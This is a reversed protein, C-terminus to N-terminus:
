NSLTATSQIIKKRLLDINSFDGKDMESIRGYTMEFTRNSYELATKLNHEIILVATGNKKSEEKIWALLDRSTNPALGATPEDLLLLRPAGILTMGLALIQRQGGSLIGAREKFNKILKKGGSISELFSIFSKKGEEVKQSEIFRGSIRFNDEISLDPFIRGGQPLYHIKNKLWFAPSVTGIQKSNHFINGDSRKLIGFIVKMLTSKGAGNPGVLTIFDKEYVKFNIGNLIPKKSNAYRAKVNELGLIENM